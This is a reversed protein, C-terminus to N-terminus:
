SVSARPTAQLTSHTAQQCGAFSSAWSAHMGGRTGQEEWATSSIPSDGSSSKWLNADRIVRCRLTLWPHRGM